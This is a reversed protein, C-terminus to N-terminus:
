VSSSQQLFAPSGSQFTRFLPFFLIQRSSLYLVLQSGSKRKKRPFIIKKPRHYLKLLVPVFLIKPLDLDMNTHSVSFKGEMKQQCPMLRTVDCRMRFEWVGVHSCCSLGRQNHAAGKEASIHTMLREGRQSGGRDENAKEEKRDQFYFCVPTQLQLTSHFHSQAFNVKNNNDNLAFTVRQHVWKRAWKFRTAM